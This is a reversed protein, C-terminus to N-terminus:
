IIGMVVMKIQDGDSKHCIENYTCRTYNLQFRLFKIPHYDVGVTYNRQIDNLEKDSNFYDYRLIPTFHAPLNVGGVAYWGRSTKSGTEGAVYESRAFGFDSKYGAGASWRNYKTYDANKEGWYYSASLTLCNIPHVMIRGTVDKSKNNDKLAMGNGNFVGLAYEIMSFSKRQLFCGYISIGVDRGTTTEGSLGGQVLQRIVLPYDVLEEQLPGNLNGITFPVKFQGLCFSLENLPKFRIRADYTKFKYLDVLLRYDFKAPLKGNIDIRANRIEFTSADNDYSYGIALYGSINPMWKLISQVKTTIKEVSEVRKSLSDTNEANASSVSTIILLLAIVSYRFILKM